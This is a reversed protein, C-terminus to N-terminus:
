SLGHVRMRIGLSRAKKGILARPAPLWVGSRIAKRTSWLFVKKSWTPLSHPTGSCRNPLQAKLLYPDPKVLCWVPLKQHRMTTSGNSTSTSQISLLRVMPIVAVPLVHALRSAIKMSAFVGNMLLCVMLSARTVMALWPYGPMPSVGAWHHIKKVMTWIVTYPRGMSRAAQSFSPSIKM